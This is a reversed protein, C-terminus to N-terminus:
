AAKERPLRALILNILNEARWNMKLERDSISECVMEPTVDDPWTNPYGWRVNYYENNIKTVQIIDLVRARLRALKAPTNPRRRWARLLRYQGLPWYWVDLVSMYVPWYLRFM